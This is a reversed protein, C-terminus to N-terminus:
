SPCNNELFNKMATIKYKKDFAEKSLKYDAETGIEQWDGDKYETLIVPFKENSFLPAPSLAYAKKPSDFTVLPVNDCEDLISNVGALYEGDKLFRIVKTWEDILGIELNERAGQWNSNDRSYTWKGSEYQIYYEKGDEGVRIWFYDDEYIMNSFSCENEGSNELGIEYTVGNLTISDGNPSNEFFGPNELNYSYKISEQLNEEIWTKIKEKDKVEGFEVNDDLENNEDYGPIVDGIGNESGYELLNNWHPSKSEKLTITSYYIEDDFANWLLTNDTYSQLTNLMETTSIKKLEDIYELKNNKSLKVIKSLELNGDEGQIYINWSDHWGVAYIWRGKNQRESDVAKSYFVSVENFMSEYEEELNNEELYSTALAYLEYNFRSEELSNKLIFAEQSSPKDDEIKGIFQDTFGKRFLIWKGIENGELHCDGDTCQTLEIKDSNIGLSTLQDIFIEGQYVENIPRTLCSDESDEGGFNLHNINYLIEDFRGEYKEILPNFGGKIFGFLVLLLIIILLVITLLKKVTWDTSGRKNKPIM